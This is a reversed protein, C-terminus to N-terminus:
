EEDLSRGYQELRRRIADLEAKNNVERARRAQERLENVKQQVSPDEQGKRARGTTGQWSQPNQNRNQASGTPLITPTAGATADSLKPGSPADARKGSDFWGGAPEATRADSIQTGQQGHSLSDPPQPRDVGSTGAMGQPHGQQPHHDARHHEPNPDNRHFYEGYRAPMHEQHHGGGGHGTDVSVHTGGGGVQVDLRPQGHGGGVQVDLRPQGHGEGVQVDLRPQGHGGGVHIGVGGHGVSISGRDMQYHQPTIGHVPDSPRLNHAIASVTGSVTGGGSHHYGPHSVATMIASAAHNGEQVLRSLQPNHDMTARVAEQAGSSNHAAMSVAQTNQGVFAANVAFAVEQNQSLPQHQGTERNHAVVQTGAHHENALHSFYASTAHGSSLTNHLGHSSAAVVASLDQSSGALANSLVQPSVQMDRSLQQMAVQQETGQGYMATKVLDHNPHMSVLEQATRSAAVAPYAGDGLSSSVARLSSESHSTSGYGSASALIQPDSAVSRALHAQAVDNGAMAQSLVNQPASQAIHLALHGSQTQSAAQVAEPGQAIAHRGAAGILTVADGSDGRMLAGHVVDPSVSFTSAARNLETYDGNRVGTVVAQPDIGGERLTTQASVSANHLAATPNAVTYDGAAQSASHTVSSSTALVAAADRNGHSYLQHMEQSSQVSAASAVADSRNGDAARFLSQTDQGGHTAASYTAHAAMMLSNGQQYGEALHRMGETPQVRNGSADTVTGTTAAETAVQGARAMVTGSELSGGGLAENLVRPSVGLEQAAQQVYAERQQPTGNLAQEVARSDGGSMQTLVSQANHSAAAMVTASQGTAGEVALRAQSSGTYAAELMAPSSGIAQQVERQAVQDGALAREMTGPQTSSQVAGAALLSVDHNRQAYSQIDQPSMGQSQMNQMEHSGRAVMVAAAEGTNGYVASQVHDFSTGMREAIQHQLQQDGGVARQFQEQSVGAESLVMKSGSMAAVVHEGNAGLLAHAAAPDNGLAAQQVLHQRQDFAPSGPPLNSGISIAEAAATNGSHAAQNLAQMQPSDAGHIVANRGAAEMTLAAAGPDGGRAMELTMPSVGLKDQIASAAGADGHLARNLTGDDIGTAKMLDQTYAKAMDAQPHGAVSADTGNALIGTHSGAASTMQDLALDKALPNKDATMSLGAIDGGMGLLGEPGGALMSSASMVKNDLGALPGDGFLANGAIGTAANALDGAMPPLGFQNTLANNADSLNNLLNDGMNRNSQSSTDGMNADGGIVTKNMNYSASSTPPAGAGGGGGGALGAIAGGIAASAAGSADDKGGGPGGGPPPGGDKGGGPGGGDAGGGAGHHGAGGGHAGGPGGEPGGAGGGKSGSAGGSGSGPTAMPSPSVSLSQSLGAKGVPAGSSGSSGSAGSAGSSSSLAPAAPSGAGGGKAGGAAGGSAGGGGGGGGRDKGAQTMASSMQGMAARAMTDAGSAASSVLSVFDFASKVSQVCLFVLACTYVTGSDGVGKFAALLFISTNWFLAWFCLIIVGEVWAGFAQRLRPVPWVWLAASVPGMCWLYYLFVMQFACYINWTLGLSAMTSNFLLRNIMMSANVDEDPLRSEDVGVCPDIFRTTLTHSEMSSWVDHNVIKADIPPEIANRNSSPKNIPLARKIACKADQYMDSGFMRHYEDAITYTLSNSVDIGYNIVLFSGPILFIAIISRLIGEFPSVDGIINSGQAVIARVQALVAGPLLLLVAMPIFLEYRIRQWVNGAEATFNGLPQRVYDIANICQNVGMNGASNGASNAMVGAMSTSMWMVKEPDFLQELFRNHNYREIVQFQTDSVPYGFTQFLNEQIAEDRFTPVASVATPIMVPWSFVTGSKSHVIVGPGMSKQNEVVDHGGQPNHQDRIGHQAAAPFRLFYNHRTDWHTIPNSDPGSAFAAPIASLLYVGLMLCAALVSRNFRSQPGFFTTITTLTKM